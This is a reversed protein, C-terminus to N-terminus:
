QDLDVLGYKSVAISRPGGSGCPGGPFCVPDFAITVERSGCSWSPSCVFVGTTIEARSNAIFGASREGAPCSTTMMAMAFVLVAITWKMM